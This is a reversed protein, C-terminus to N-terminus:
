GQLFEALARARKRKKGPDLLKTLAYQQEDDLKSWVTQDMSFGVERASEIVATPVERPPDALQVVTQTLTTAQLGRRVLADDIFTRLTKCEDESNCPLSAISTKEDSSMGLWQDRGIKIALRDLKRKISMPLCDSGAEFAFQRHM